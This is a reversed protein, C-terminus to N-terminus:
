ICIGLKFMGTNRDCLFEDVSVSHMDVPQNIYSPFMLRLYTLIDKGNIITIAVQIRKHREM